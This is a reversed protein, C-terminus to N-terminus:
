DNIGMLEDLDFIPVNSIEFWSKAPYIMIMCALSVDSKITTSSMKHQIISKRCTVILDVNVADWPKLEEMNNHTLREYLTNIKKFQQFIKCPNAYM